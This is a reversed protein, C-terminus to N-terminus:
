PPIVESEKLFDVMLQVTYDGRFENIDLRYVIQVLDTPLPNPSCNFAIADISKESHPAKLLLKLHKEGVIRAQLVHFEGEFLPEPFGQGWPALYRLKKAWHLNLRDSPLEGDTLWQKDLVVGKLRKEIERSFAQEFENYRDEALSLGAAMAHGGFKEVLGPNISAVSDLADRLHVGPISRGSGKITGNDDCAFIIVPRHIQDKIRSALIGIVGQHWHPEYLCLASASIGGGLNSHENLILEAEERMESEIIRRDRNLQDLKNALENATAYNDSLLCEVGVSMDSLRGAANLRPGLGFGIDSGCLVAQTKGAIRLLARIGPRTCDARIRRMGQEVLIRNVKDLEVVDALTGIAVLDLLETLNPIPQAQQDFWKLLLLQKRLALMIYFIVGVGALNNCGSTDELLNPNVIAAAEPLQQPPLHHDTILVQIGLKNAQEVGAISAIGNDVTVILDPSRKNALLVIEPSLGYGYEFRNPVLYSLNKAGLQMLATIAVATSTAGDADYDGVILIHKQQELCQVLLQVAEDMGYLLMPSPLSKLSFQLDNKSSIGRTALIKSLFPDDSINQDTSSDTARQSITVM